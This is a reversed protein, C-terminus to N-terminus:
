SNIIPGSLNFEECFFLNHLHDAIYKSPLKCVALIRARVTGSSGATQPALPAKNLSAPLGRPLSNNRKSMFPLEAKRKDLDSEKIM